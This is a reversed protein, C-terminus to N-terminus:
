LFPLALLTENLHSQVNLTPVDVLVKNALFSLSFTFIVSNLKFKNIEINLYSLFNSFYNIPNKFESLNSSFSKNFLM